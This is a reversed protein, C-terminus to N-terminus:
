PLVPQVTRIVSPSGTIAGAQLRTDDVLRHLAWRARATRAAVDILGYRELLRDFDSSLGTSGETRVVHDACGRWFGSPMDAHGRLQAREHLAETAHAARAAACATQRRVNTFIAM